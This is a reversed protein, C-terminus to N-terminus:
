EEPGELGIDGAMESIIDSPKGLYELTGDEQKIAIRWTKDAFMHMEIEDDLAAMSIVDSAGDIIGAWEERSAKKM